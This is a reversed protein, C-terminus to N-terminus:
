GALAFSQSRTRGSANSVLDAPDLILAIQGDGLITAAAVGPIHGYSRQLGKIVVQRQELISDVVLASRTGNEQATLLVIGGAYSEMPARYGLEAGLDYLPVFAGRVHIVNTNPGLARIDDDTLTATELISSLPVVLTENAVNVVMGDLVALTLPLSISFRTGKGPESHITIRGGLGQIAQRVVDMGVGRGSLASVQDATSFGPLFLLNDIESDSLQADPAILGKEIAKARVKPRNIGAGDDTIEIVVRGSRHQASLTIVGERTKGAAERKDPTELGHDVSNRIMHTLPDALREIVTKDVETTEGETRLRVDKGVASSAERVIRGMRQFLPKVPQARIMMVSDQIDRTLMMFAELGTMVASNPPLGAEAVSQALMAQNIVLEGVLNVLRDIRDLDVRVTASPESSNEKAAPPNGSPVSAGPGTSAAPAPAPAAAAIPAETPAPTASLENLSPPNNMELASPNQPPAAVPTPAPMGPLDSPLELMPESGPTGAFPDASLPDAGELGDLPPLDFGGVAADAGGSTIELECVDEVFDFVERIDFDTVDGTIEVVWTVYAGEPDLEELSPLDDTECRTTCTGLKALARLLHLPENGSAYLAATPKFRVTWVPQSPTTEEDAPGFDFSLGMPQFDTVEEVEEVVPAGGMLAELAVLCPESGDPPPAGDRAARVHDQLFDAAQFFLKMAEPTIEMRGCRVEDMVTEYRHAFAVLANLGFAGAGGKISHVARFVVNITENDHSGEDMDSLADQLSELLEECEVFFSARIEAMPDTAM